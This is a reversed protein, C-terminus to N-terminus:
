HEFDLVVQNIGTFADDNISTVSSPIWVYKLNSCDAFAHYEISQCDSPLIVAQCDIGAFAEEEITQLDSPLHLITMESLAPITIEKTQQTFHGSRFRASYYKATGPRNQTPSIITTEIVDVTETITGETCRMCRRTGTVQTNLANWSYRPTGRKHGLPSTSYDWPPASIQTQAASDSFYKHCLSCDWYEGCPHETCTAASAPHHILAHPMYDLTISQVTFGDKQFASSTYVITGKELCNGDQTIEFTSDVTESDTHEPNRTCIRSGTVQSHDDNWIYNYSSEDWDHGQASIIEPEDITAGCIECHTGGTHGPTTCTPEVDETAIPTHSGGTIEIDVTANIGNTSKATITVPGPHLAHVIGNSNVTARVTNSSSFSVYKNVYTKSDQTTVNATVQMESGVPLQTDSASLEISAVPSYIHFTVQRKIGTIDTATIVTDGAKKATVKGTQSVTAVTTNSSSWTIQPQANLPQINKISLQVSSQVNPQVSLRIDNSVNLDFSEVPIYVTVTVSDSISGAANDVCATIVASGPYVATVVGDSSVEAINSNSSTWYLSSWNYPFITFSLPHRTGLAQYYDAELSVIQIDNMEAESMIVVPYQKNNAWAKPISYEYCYITASKSLMTNSITIQDIADHQFAIKALKSCNSFAGADITNVSSPITVSTIKSCGYFANAGISSLGESLTLTALSTCGRFASDSITCHGSPIFLSTLGCNSFAYEDIFTISSPFEFTILGRCNQFAHDFIFSTQYSMSVKSLSSCNYFAYSPISQLNDPLTIQELSSCNYFAKEDIWTVTNPITIQTLNTCGYFASACIQDVGDEIIVTKVNAATWPHSTMSGSGYISLAGNDNISWNVGDGCSGSTAASATGSLVFFLLLTAYTILIHSFVRKM